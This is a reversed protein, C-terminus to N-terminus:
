KFYSTEEKMMKLQADEYKLEGEKRQLIHVGTRKINAELLWFNEGFFRELFKLSVLRKDWIIYTDKKIGDNLLLKIIDGNPLDIFYGNELIPSPGDVVILDYDKQPLTKYTSFYHYPIKDTQWIEVESKHITINQKLDEPILENALKICKDSQEVGDIQYPESKEKLALSLIATSCGIGTGLDLVNKVEKEKVFDYLKQAMFTNIVWRGEPHSVFKQYLEKLKM